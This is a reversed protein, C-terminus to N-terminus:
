DAGYGTLVVVPTRFLIYLDLWFSWQEIYALDLRIMDNFDLLSRGSVQWLGTLGPVAVLRGCERPTYLEIEYPIAPRPGVLSMEGRLVNILQPLEDLSYKRLIRGLPTIRPDNVLKFKGGVPQAVGNVLAEYYARHTGSEATRVMSRFKYMRFLKGYQGVREQAFLIPGPSTFLVLLAILLLMPALILLLLTSIAVDLVRKALMQLRRAASASVVAHPQSEIRTSGDLGAGLVIADMRQPTRLRRSGQVRADNTRIIESM